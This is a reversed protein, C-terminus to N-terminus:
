LTGLKEICIKVNSFKRLTEKNNEFCHVPVSIKHYHTISLVKNNSIIIHYFLFQLVKLAYIELSQKPPSAGRKPCRM